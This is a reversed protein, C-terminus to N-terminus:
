LVIQMNKKDASWNCEQRASCAFCARSLKDARYLLGRLSREEAIKENRHSRVADVIVDTEKQDFGSERLIKPALEASAQEHPTGDEYQRYRGIDHVLAAAYVLDQLLEQAKSLDQTQLLKQTEMIPLKEKVALLMAIRAVDLFHAMDHHCYRRDRELEENKRIAEQYAPNSLIRNVREM